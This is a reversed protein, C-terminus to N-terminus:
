AAFGRSRGRADRLLAAFQARPVPAGIYFGQVSDCGENRLV